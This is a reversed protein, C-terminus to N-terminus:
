LQSVHNDWASALAGTLLQTKDPRGWALKGSGSTLLFGNTRGRAVVGSADGFPTLGIFRQASVDFYLAVGGKPSTAAVLGGTQDACISGVYGKLRANAAQPIEALQLAEGRKHFGILVPQENRPGKHQCGFVVCGGEAMTLHRISLQHLERPLEHQELVEGSQTDIYVLNPAMTELNLVARSRDPHTEIGGNAVVLTRGDPMLAIDHPGVGGSAFEGIQRYSDTADRVGIMGRKSEFDNETSYLLRADASFVGHGYFHRNPKTAFWRPPRDTNAGFAVAFTGPRRAFAICDQTGPRAAFSHGRSPLEVRSMEGNEISFIAAAYGGMPERLAAAYLQREESWAHHPLLPCAALAATGTLLARRDIEMLHMSGWPWGQAKHWFV